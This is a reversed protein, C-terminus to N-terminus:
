SFSGVTFAGSSDARHNLPLRRLMRTLEAKLLSLDLSYFGGVFQSSERWREPAELKHHVPLEKVDLAECFPRNPCAFIVCQIDDLADRRVTM